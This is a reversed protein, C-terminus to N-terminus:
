TPVVVWGAWQQTLQMRCGGFCKESECIIQLGTAVSQKDTRFIITAHVCFKGIPNTSSEIITSALCTSNLWLLPAKSSQFVFRLRPPKLGVLFIDTLILIRGLYIYFISEKFSLDGRLGQFHVTPLDQRKPALDVESFCDTFGSGVLKSMFFM